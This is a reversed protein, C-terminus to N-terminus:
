VTGETSNREERRSEDSASRSKEIPPSSRLSLEALEGALRKHEDYWDDNSTRIHRLQEQMSAMTGEISSGLDEGEAAPPGAEEKGDDDTAWRSGELGVKSEDQEAKLTGLETELERVRKRSATISSDFEGLQNLLSVNKDM